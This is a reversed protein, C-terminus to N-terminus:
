QYLCPKSHLLGLEADPSINAVVLVMDRYNFTSTPSENEPAFEIIQQPNDAKLDEKLGPNKAKPISLSLLDCANSLDNALQITITESIKKGFFNTNELTFSLKHDNASFDLETEDTVIQAGQKVVTGSWNLIFKVKVKDYAAFGQPMFVKIEKETVFQIDAANAIEVNKFIRDLPIWITNDPRESIIRAYEGKQATSSLLGKGETYIFEGKCETPLNGDSDRVSKVMNDKLQEQTRKSNWVRCMANQGKMQINLWLTNFSFGGTGQRELEIKEGDVYLTPADVYTPSHAVIAIHQWKGPEVAPKKSVYVGNSGVFFVLTNDPYRANGVLVGLNIGSEGGDYFACSHKENLKWWGEITVDVDLDKGINPLAVTETRDGVFALSYLKDTQPPIKFFNITRVNDKENADKEKLAVKVTHKGEASFDGKKSFEVVGAAQPQIDCALEEEFEDLEDIKCTLKVKSVPTHGNNRIQVKIPTQDTLNSRGSQLDVFSIIGLEVPSNGTKIDATFDVVHGWNIEEKNKFKTYNDDTALIIRMRRKGAQLDPIASLDVDVTYNTTNAVLDVKLMEKSSAADDLQNDGNLDIFVRIASPLQGTRPKRSLVFKIKSKTQTYLPIKVDPRYVVRPSGRLVVSEVDQPEVVNIALDNYNKITGGGEWIPDHLIALTKSNDTIDGDKALKAEVYMRMPATVDIEKPLAFITESKPNLTPIEFRKEEGNITFYIGVNHFPHDILNEVVAELKNHNDDAGKAERLEKLKWQNSMPIEALEALWGDNQEGSAGVFAFTIGGNDAESIFTLPDSSVDTVKYSAKTININLNSPVQGTFVFVTDGKNFARQKFRVQVAANPKTPLVQLVAQEQEKYPELAGRGDTFTAKGSLTETVRPVQPLLMGWFQIYSVEPMVIGNGMNYVEFSYENNAPREDDKVDVRVTVNFKHPQASEFNHKFSLIVDEFPKMTEIRHTYAVKGDVQVTVPVDKLEVSSYNLVSFNVDEEGMKNKAVIEPDNAWAIGVDPKTSKKMVRYHVLVIGNKNTELAAELNVSIKQGAYETLDWALNHSEGDGPVQTRNFVDPVANGNVTLRLLSGNPNETKTMYYFTLLQIPTGAPINSLDLQCTSVKAVNDTQAFPDDWSTAKKAAIWQLMHSDFPLKLGVLAERLTFKLNKGTTLSVHQFPLGVFSELYPLMAETLVAPRSTPSLIGVSRQGAIGTASLARVAFINRGDLIKEAPIPYEVAPKDVTAIVSYSGKNIDAQLIEYKEANAAADWTLKWGTTSCSKDELKVGTVFSMISFLGQMQVTTGKADTVRITAKNTPEIAKPLNLSICATTASAALNSFTAGANTSYEVKLPTVLNETRLFIPLGPAYVDGAMPSTIAPKQYDFYWVVAYDQKDGQNVTGAVNVTYTGATPDKIVVQEINDVANKQTALALANPKKPDLTYPYYTTSGSLVTLDLDNVLPSDGLAYEKKAVPDNWCIMVRLEKVGAPVTIAKTQAAGGKELSALHHWNSEMAKVAALSNLIGFGFKYDPGVNGGDDATNAILAKLYYNYPPAGGHLQGWRQTLLALHGATTPCSMSTGGMEGYSQEPMVSYVADGRACIIPFIRGDRLPGFSSFTTMDGNVKLAGVSIINKAYNTAHGFAQQCAKQDNGASYCHTLTPIYYALLDTAPNGLFTYTLYQQAQCLASMSFGYSNSTISINYKEYSELMEQQVTKGNSQKNFNWTWIQAEPAMGRAKEDLLGAGLITGTTHMGHGGAAAQGFEFEQRHVRNGYDVHDEVNGDWIGLRVGEGTLGRGGLQPSMRLNTAGSLRAGRYNNFEMPPEAWSVFAVYEADALALIQERTGTVEVNRLM